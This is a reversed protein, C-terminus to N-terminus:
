HPSATVGDEAPGFGAREAWIKEYKALIGTVALETHQQMSQFALQLPWTEEEDMSSVTKIGPYLVQDPSRMVEHEPFSLLAFSPLSFLGDRLGARAIRMDVSPLAALTSLREIQELMVAPGGYGNQLTAEGLIVNLQLSGQIMRAQLSEAMTAQAEVERPLLRLVMLRPKMAARMYDPTRLIDPVTAPDWERDLAAQARPDAGRTSLGVENAFELLRARTLPPANYLELLAALDRLKVPCRANEIRSLKSPSWELRRCASDSTWGLHERLERLTRSLRADIVSSKPSTKPLTTPGKQAVQM